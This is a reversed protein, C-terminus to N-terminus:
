RWNLTSYVPVGANNPKREKGRQNITEIEENTLIIDFGKDLTITLGDGWDFISAITGKFVTVLKLRIDRGEM